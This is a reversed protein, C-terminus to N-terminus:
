PSAQEPSQTGPSRAPAPDSDLGLTALTGPDFGVMRTEPVLAVGAWEIVRRRVEIMLAVIDDASGGEDVQIFNAHKTSVEATGVRLGRCGAEDILRGASDGPPNTFVSGANAGGPQHQRRWTVIESIARRGEDADGPALALVADVVLEHSAISSHRYSLALEAVPVRHDRGARFDVIRADVLCHALDSGHGGANMRVAGGMSGPVGVAWEFGTLGAAVTQRAVVPLPAAGGATVLTDAITVTEFHPGLILVLGAFGADSVLLNSGRGVVLLPVDVGALAGGVTDLDAESDMIAALAAAGGVRYTSRDALSVAPAAVGELRSAVEDLLASM